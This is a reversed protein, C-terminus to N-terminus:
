KNKKVKEEKSDGIEILYYAGTWVLILIFCIIIGNQFGGFELRDINIFGGLLSALWGESFLQVVNIIGKTLLGTASKFCGTSVSMSVIGVVSAIAVPLRKNSCISWVIIFVAAVLALAFFVVTAILRGKAPDLASPWSMSGPEYPIGFFTEEGLFIKIIKMLTFTEELGYDIFSTSARLLIGDLFLASPFVAAALLANVIRYLYKM